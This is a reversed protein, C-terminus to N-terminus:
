PNPPAPLPLGNRKAHYYLRRRKEYARGRLLQFRTYALLRYLAYLAIPICFLNVRLSKAGTYGLLVAPIIAVLAGTLYSNQSQLRVAEMTWDDDILARSKKVFARLKDTRHKRYRSSLKALRKNYRKALARTWFHLLALGALYSVASLFLSKPIDPMWSGIAFASTTDSTTAVAGAIILLNLM